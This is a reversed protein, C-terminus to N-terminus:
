APATQGKDDTGGGDKKIREEMKAIKEKLEVMRLERNIAVKNMIEFEAVKRKLEDEMKMRETIDHVIFQLLRKKGFLISSSFIEVDRVQGGAIQHRTKIYKVAGSDVFPKTKLAEKGPAPDLQMGHMDCLKERPYGYFEAASLNADIIRDDEPDILLMVSSNDTFQKRYSEESARLEETRQLVQEELVIRRGSLFIIFLV